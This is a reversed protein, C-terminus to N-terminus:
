IQNEKIDDLIEIIIGPDPSLKFKSMETAVTIATSFNNDGVEFRMEEGHNNFVLKKNVSDYALTQGDRYNIIPNLSGTAKYLNIIPYERKLELSYVLEEVSKYALNINGGDFEYDLNRIDGTELANIIINRLSEDSDDRNVFSILSFKEGSKLDNIIKQFKSQRVKNEM